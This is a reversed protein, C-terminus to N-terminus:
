FVFTVVNEFCCKRKLTRKAEKSNARCDPIEFPWGVQRSKGLSAEISAAPRVKRGQFMIVGFGSFCQDLAPSTSPLPPLRHVLSFIYCGENYDLISFNGLVTLWAPRWDVCFRLIYKWSILKQLWDLAVSNEYSHQALYNRHVSLCVTPSGLSSSFIMSM